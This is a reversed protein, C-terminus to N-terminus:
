ERIILRLSAEFEDDSMAALNGHHKVREISRAIFPYDRGFQELDFAAVQEASPSSQEEIVRGFTFHVATTIVLHAHDEDVGASVLSQSAMEFLIVLTVAPYLHAGAVIRGGDRYALMARRLRGCLLILWEQWSEDQHRPSVDRFERALMGEAMHDVLNEKSTFYWYLAPAKLDLRKALKRLSLENLGEENLLELAAEIIEEQRGGLMREVRQRQKDFQHNIHDRQRDFQRNVQARHREIHELHRRYFNRPNM